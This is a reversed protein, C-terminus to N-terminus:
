DRFVERLRLSVDWLCLVFVNFRRRGSGEPSNEGIGGEDRALGSGGVQM